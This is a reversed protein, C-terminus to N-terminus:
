DKKQKTQLTNEKGKIQFISITRKITLKLLEKIIFLYLEVSGHLHLCLWNLIKKIDDISKNPWFNYTLIFQQAWFKKPHAVYGITKKYLLEKQEIVNKMFSYSATSTLSSGKVRYVAVMDEMIYSDGWLLAQMYMSSDSMEIMNIADTEDFARKRFITSVTSLPKSIKHQFEQLYNAGDIRGVNTTAHSKLYNKSTDEFEYSIQCQGSVFSLNSDQAMIDIAKRFFYIDTLYDDDDPMYLYNGKAIRYGAKHKNSPGQIKSDKIYIIQPFRKLIVDTEDDEEIDNVVIVEFNVDQQKYIQELEYLIYDKRKHTPIIVSLEIM